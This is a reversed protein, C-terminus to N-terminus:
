TIAITAGLTASYLPTAPTPILDGRLTLGVNKSMAWDLNLGVNPFIDTSGGLQQDGARGLIMTSGISRHLLAAGLNMGVRWQDAFQYGATANLPILYSNAGQTSRVPPNTGFFNSGPSGIHSYMLGSELGLDIGIPRGLLNAMNLHTTFGETIRSAQTGTNDQFGLVGIRPTVSWTKEFLGKTLEPAEGRTVGSTEIDEAALASSACVLLTTMAFTLIKKM